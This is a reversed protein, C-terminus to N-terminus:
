DKNKEKSDPVMEIENSPTNENNEKNKSLPQFSVKNKKKLSEFINVAAFFVLFVFSIICFIILIVYSEFRADFESQEENEKKEKDFNINLITGSYPIFKNTYYNGFNLYLKQPFSAEVSNKKLILIIEYTMNKELSEGINVTYYDTGNDLRKTTVSLQSSNNPTKLFFTDLVYINSSSFTLILENNGGTPTFGSNTIVIKYYYKNERLGAISCEKISNNCLFQDKYDIRSM